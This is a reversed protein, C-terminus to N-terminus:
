FCPATESFFLLVPTDTSATLSFEPAAIENLTGAHWRSLSLERLPYKLGDSTIKQAPDFSFISVARGVPGHFRGQGTFVVFFGSETYLRCDPEACEAFRSLNGLLHDERGGSAGLVAVPKIGRSRCFRFAKALDNTEQEAFRVTRESFRAKLEPGLSDMDGVIWDPERGFDLLKRAAGDCCVVSEARRLLTLLDSRRPFEGNALIVTRDTM